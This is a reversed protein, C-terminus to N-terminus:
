VIIYKQFKPRHDSLRLTLLPITETPTKYVYFSISNDNQETTANLKGNKILEILNNKIREIAQRSDM